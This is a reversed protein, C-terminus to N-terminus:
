VHKGTADLLAKYKNKVGEPKTDFVELDYCLEMLFKIYWFRFFRSKILIKWVIKDLLTPPKTAIM